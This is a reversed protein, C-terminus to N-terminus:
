FWEKMRMTPGFRCVQTTSHPVSMDDINLMKYVDEKGSILCAGCGEMRIATREQRQRTEEIV